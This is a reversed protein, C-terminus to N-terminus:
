TTFSPIPASFRAKKVCMGFGTPSTPPPMALAITPVSIRMPIAASKATGIPQMVPTCRESYGAM